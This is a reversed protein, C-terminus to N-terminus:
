NGESNSRSHMQGRGTSYVCESHKKDQADTVERGIIKSAEQLNGYDVKTSDTKTSEMKTTSDRNGPMGEKETQTQRATVPLTLCSSVAIVMILKQNMKM